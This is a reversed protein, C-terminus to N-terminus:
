GAHPCNVCRSGVDDTVIALLKSAARLGDCRLDGRAGATRRRCLVVIDSVDALERPMMAEKVRRSVLDDGPALRSMSYSHTTMRPSSTGQWRGSGEPQDPHHRDPEREHMEREQMWIGAGRSTVTTARSRSPKSIPKTAGGGWSEDSGAVTAIVEETAPDVVPFTGGAAPARWEGDIYLETIM